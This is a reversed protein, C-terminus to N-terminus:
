AQVLLALLSPADCLRLAYKKHLKETKNGITEELASARWKRLSPIRWHQRLQIRGVATQGILVFTDERIAETM